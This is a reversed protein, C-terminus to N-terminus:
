VAWFVFVFGNPLLVDERVVYNTERRRGESEFGARKEEVEAAPFIIGVNQPCQARAPRVARTGERAESGEKAEVASRRKGARYVLAAPLPTTLLRPLESLYRNCCRRLM